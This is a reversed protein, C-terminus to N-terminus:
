DSLRDAKMEVSVQYLVAAPRITGTAELVFVSRNVVTIQSTTPNETLCPEVPTRLATIDTSRGNAPDIRWLRQPASCLAGSGISWLGGRSGVLPVDGFLENPGELIQKGSLDFAILRTSLVPHGDSGGAVDAWVTPGISSLWLVSSDAPGTYITSITQSDAALHYIAATSSAGDAIWLGGGNAVITGHGGESPPANTITRIVAGTSPSVQVLESGWYSMWISGAGYTMDMHARGSGQTTIMVANMVAAHRTAPNFIELHFNDDNIASVDGAIYILGNGVALYYGCVSIPYVHVQLNVPNIREISCSQQTDQGSSGLVWVSRDVSVVQEPVFPGPFNVSRISTRSSAPSGIKSSHPPSMPSPRTTEISAVVVGAVIVVVGLWALRRRRERQKAERFLLDADTPGSQDPSAGPNSPGQVVVM